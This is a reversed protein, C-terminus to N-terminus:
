KDKEETAREFIEMKGDRLRMEINDHGALFEDLWQIEGHSLEDDIIIDFEDPYEKDIEELDDGYEVYVPDKADQVTVSFPSLEKLVARIIKVTQDLKM